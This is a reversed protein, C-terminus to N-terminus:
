INILDFSTNDMALPIVLYQLKEKRSRFSATWTAQWLRSEEQEAHKVKITLKGTQLYNQFCKCYQKIQTALLDKFYFQFNANILYGSSFMEFEYIIMLSPLM